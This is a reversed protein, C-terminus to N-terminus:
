AHNLSKLLLERTNSPYFEIIVFQIFSSRKKNKINKFWDLTHLSDKWQNYKPSRLLKTTFGQIVDKSVLGAETKTPNILRIQKKDQFNRKHDKFLIYACKEEIKGLRDVIQLKTVFKAM